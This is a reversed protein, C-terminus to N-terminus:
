FLDLVELSHVQGGPPYDTTTQSHDADTATTNDGDFALPSPPGLRLYDRALGAENCPRWQDRGVM